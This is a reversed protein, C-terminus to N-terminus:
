NTNLLRWFIEYVRRRIVEIQHNKKGCEFAKNAYEDLIKPTGCISKIQEIADKEDHAVIAADNRRLYKITATENGVAVICRQQKFYDVIKTSFSLRYYLRGSLNMPEVHLLIDAGELVENVKEQEVYDMLRCSEGITLSKRINPTLSTITYIKLQVKLGNKNLKAIENGLKKLTKWRGQGVQGMYVIQYPIKAEKAKIEINNFDHGKYLLGTPINFIKGYEDQQEKTITFLYKSQKIVNKIRKRSIFRNLWFFPSLSFQKLTYVDDWVYPVMVANTYHQVYCAINNVNAYEALNVFIIDPKVSDLFVNLNDNKWNGFKWALDRGWYFIQWHLSKMIDFSKSISKEDKEDESFDIEKGAKIKSDFLSRIIAKDSIQYFRKAVHVNPKQGQCYLHSIELKDMGSFINTYSNGTANDNRWAQLSIVLVKIKDGQM